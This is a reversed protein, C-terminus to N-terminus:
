DHHGARTGRRGGARQSPPARAQAVSASGSRPWPPTLSAAQARASPVAPPSRGQPPARPDSFQAGRAPDRRPEQSEASSWSPAARIRDKQQVARSAPHGPLSAFRALPGAVAAQVSARPGRPTPPSPRRGPASLPSAAAPDSGGKELGQGSLRSMRLGGSVAENPSTGLAWPTGNVSQGFVLLCARAEAPSLRGLPARPGPLLTSQCVCHLPCDALWLKSVGACHWAGSLVHPLYM